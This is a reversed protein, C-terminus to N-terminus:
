NVRYSGQSAQRIARAPMRWLLRVRSRSRQMWFSTIAPIFLPSKRDFLQSLRPKFEVSSGARELQTSVASQAICARFGADILEATAALDAFHQPMTRPRFRIARAARATLLVGRGAVADISLTGLEEPRINKVALRDPDIRFGGTVPHREGTPWIEYSVSGVIACEQEHAIKVLEALHQSDLVTDNNGLYVFDRSALRDRIWLLAREVSGAWWLSGDGTLLSTEPRQAVRTATEDTSGDDVVVTFCDEGPPLEQADLSELFQKTFDWRNHVAIVVYITM